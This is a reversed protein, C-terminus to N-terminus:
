SDFLWYRYDDVMVCMCMKRLANYNYYIILNSNTLLMMVMVFYYSWDCIMTLIVRELYEQVRLVRGDGNVPLNLWRSWSYNQLCADIALVSCGLVYCFLLAEWACMCSDVEGLDIQDSYFCHYLNKLIMESCVQWWLLEMNLWVM